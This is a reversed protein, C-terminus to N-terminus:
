QTFDVATAESHQVQTRWWRQVADLMANKFTSLWHVYEHESPYRLDIFTLGDRADVFHFLAAATVPQEIVLWLMDPQQCTVSPAQAANLWARNEWPLRILSGLPTGSARLCSLVLTMLREKDAPAIDYPLTFPKLLADVRVALDRIALCHFIQVDLAAM